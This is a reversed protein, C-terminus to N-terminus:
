KREACAAAEAREEGSLDEGLKEPGPEDPVAVSGGGGGSTVLAIAGICLCFFTFM